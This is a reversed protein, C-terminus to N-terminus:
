SAVSYGHRALLALLPQVFSGENLPTPRGRGVKLQNAAVHVGLVAWTDADFIPAGSSGNETPATHYFTTDAGMLCIKSRSAVRANGLPHHVVVISSLDGESRKRPVRAGRRGREVGALACLAVDSRADRALLVSPALTYWQQARAGSHHDFTARGGGQGPLAHSATLVCHLREPRLAHSDHVASGSVPDLSCAASPARRTRELVVHVGSASGMRVQLLMANGLAIDRRTQMTRSSRPSYRPSSHPSSRPSYRPSSRPSRRRM